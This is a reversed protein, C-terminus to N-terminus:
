EGSIPSFHGNQYEMVLYDIIQNGKDDYKLRGTVGNVEHENYYAIIDKKKTGSEGLVNIVSMVDYPFASMVSPRDNFQETFSSEFDKYADTLVFSMGLFPINDMEKVTDFDYTYLDNFNLDGVMKDLIGNYYFSKVINLYNFSFSQVIIMDSKYNKVKHALSNFDKTNEEFPEDFVTIGKEKALPLVISNYADEADSIIHRLFAISKVGKAAAYELLEVDEIDSSPYQKIVNDAKTIDPSFAFVFHTIGKSQLIPNITESVSPMLSVVVDVHKTSILQNVVNIATKPEGKSDQIYLVVKSTDANMIMANAFSQGLFAMDGTLPMLVGVKIKDSKHDNNCSFSIALVFLAMMFYFLRKM